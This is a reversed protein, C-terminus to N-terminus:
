NVTPDSPPQMFPPALPEGIFDGQGPMLVSKLGVVGTFYFM